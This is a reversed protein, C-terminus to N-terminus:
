MIVRDLQPSIPYSFGDVLHVSIYFPLKQKNKLRVHGVMHDLWGNKLIEGFSVFVYTWGFVEEYITM